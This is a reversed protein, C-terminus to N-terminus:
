GPCDMAAIEYAEEDGDWNDGVCPATEAYAILANAAAKVAQCNATTPSEGYAQAALVMEAYLDYVRQNCAATSEEENESSKSCSVVGISLFLVTMLLITQIKKLRKM